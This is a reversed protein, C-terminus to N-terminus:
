GENGGGIRKPKRDSKHDIRAQGQPLQKSIPAVSLNIGGSIDLTKHEGYKYPNLKSAFWKITDIQVRLLNAQSGSADMAMSISKDAWAEVQAKRARSYADVFDQKIENDGGRYGFLWNMITAKSPINPESCIKDLTEGQAIRSCVIEAIHQSYQSDRGRTEIKDPIFTSNTPETETNDPDPSSNDDM